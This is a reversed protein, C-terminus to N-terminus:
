PAAHEVPAPDRCYPRPDVQKTRARHRGARRHHHQPHLQRQDPHRAHRSRGAPGDRRRRATWRSGTSSCTRARPSTASAAANPPCRRRGAPRTRPRHPGAHRLQRAPGARWLARGRAADARPTARVLREAPAACPLRRGVTRRGPQAQLQDRFQAARARVFQRDFDTYSTCPCTGCSSSDLQVTPLSWIAQFSSCNTLKCIGIPM